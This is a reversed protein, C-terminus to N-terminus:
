VNAEATITRNCLQYHIMITMNGHVGRTLLYIFSYTLSWKYLTNFVDL